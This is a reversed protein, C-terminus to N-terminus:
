PFIRGKSWFATLTLACACSPLRPDYMLAERTCARRGSAWVATHLTLQTTSADFAPTHLLDSATSKKGHM